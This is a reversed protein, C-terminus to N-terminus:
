PKPAKTNRGGPWGEPVKEEAKLNRILVPGSWNHLRIEGPPVRDDIEIRGFPTDFSQVQASPSGMCGHRLAVALATDDQRVSDPVLFVRRCNGCEYGVFFLQTPSEYHLLGHIRKPTIYWVQSMLIRRDPIPTNPDFETVTAGCPIQPPDSSLVIVPPLNGAFQHKQFDSKTM